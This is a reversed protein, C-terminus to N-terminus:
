ALGEREMWALAEGALERYHPSASAARMVRLNRSATHVVAVGRVGRLVAVADRFEVHEQRDFPISSLVEILRDRDRM